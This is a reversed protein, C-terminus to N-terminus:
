VNSYCVKSKDAPSTAPRKKSTKVDEEEEEDEDDEEGFSEDVAM